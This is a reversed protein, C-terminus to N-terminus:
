VVSKRDRDWTYGTWGMTHWDMDIVMVDLPLQMRDFQAVLDEIEKDTYAWYRSYWYGLTYRPPLPQQGFVQAAERLAARYDHGHALLYIDQRKGDHRPTVWPCAAAPHQDLVINDSDDVVAWGSRSILGHGLDIPTGPATLDKYDLYRDGQAADLTRTTGRLNHADRMGYRWQM